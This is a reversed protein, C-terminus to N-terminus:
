RFLKEAPRVVRYRDGVRQTFRQKEFYEMVEVSMNRGIGSADRLEAVSVAGDDATTAIREVMGALRQLDEPRAVRSKSVYRVLDLRAAQKLLMEVRRLDLGTALSLDRAALPRAAAKTLEAEVRGWLVADAPALRAQHTPLRLGLETKVLAGERVLEAAVAEQVEPAMAIGTGTLIQREGVGHAGPHEKHWRELRARAAALVAEWASPAFGFGGAAGPRASSGRQLADGTLTKIAVNRAVEALEDATLNRSEAFRGLDVGERCQELLGTLAEAHSASALARLQALRAPRARGRRPPFIDLVRGGGLTFRASQDRVILHDGFVAGIPKDLVLQALGTAGPAIAAGELVAVRGTTEAAGVHVHVPTWHELPEDRMGLVRLEADFKAVPAAGGESTLWHGRTILEKRLEPSALNVACRQGARGVEARADQAHIGRVRLRSDLGAIEVFDGVSICGSFVTGTVVFGAGVIDFTRDIALRFRGASGRPPMRASCAILHDLLSRVGDGTLASVAFRAAEALTTGALLDAIEGEVQRLRQLPVRDAKTIAVAGHSIGLLDIIALHEATQPMPGDDAAVVLLIFDTGALGCLANRIFREHGPVDIFGITEHGVIPLYAFGLDITLSRRKEEPLRDTDIGTLAKVLLTKGHDVHGATAIIM